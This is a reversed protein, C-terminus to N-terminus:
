SAASRFAALVPFCLNPHWVICHVYLWWGGALGEATIGQMELVDETKISALCRKIRSTSAVTPAADAGQTGTPHLQQMLELAAIDLVAASVLPSESVATNNPGDLMIVAKHHLSAEFSDLLGRQMAEKTKLIENQKELERCGPCPRSYAPRGCTDQSCRSVNHAVYRWQMAGLCPGVVCVDLLLVQNHAQWESSNRKM